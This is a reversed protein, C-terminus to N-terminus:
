MQISIEWFADDTACAKKFPISGPYRKNDCRIRPIVLISGVNKAGFPMAIGLVDPMRVGWKDNWRENGVIEM